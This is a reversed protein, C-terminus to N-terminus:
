NYPAIVYRTGFSELDMNRNVYLILRSITYNALVRVGDARVDFPAFSPGRLEQSKLRELHPRFQEYYFSHGTVLSLNAARITKKDGTPWYLAIQGIIYNVGKRIAVSLQKSAATDFSTRNFHKPASPHLDFTPKPLPEITGSEDYDFFPFKM